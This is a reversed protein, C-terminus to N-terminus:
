GVLWGVMPAYIVDYTARSPEPVTSTPDGAITCLDVRPEVRHSHCTSPVDACVGPSEPVGHRTLAVAGRLVM